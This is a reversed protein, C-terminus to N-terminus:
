SVFAPHCPMKQFLFLCFQLMVLMVQVDTSFSSISFPLFCLLFFFSSSDALVKVIQAKISQALLKILLGYWCFSHLLFFLSIVCKSCCIVVYLCNSMSNVILATSSPNLCIFQRCFLNSWVFCLSWFTTVHCSFSPM